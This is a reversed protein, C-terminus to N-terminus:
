LVCTSIRGVEGYELKGDIERLIGWVCMNVMEWRGLVKWRMVCECGYGM